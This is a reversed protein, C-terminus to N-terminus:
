NSDEDHRHNKNFTVVPHHICTPQHMIRAQLNSVDRIYLVIYKLLVRPLGTNEQPCHNPDSGLNATTRTDAMAVYELRRAKPGWKRSHGQRREFNGIFGDDL